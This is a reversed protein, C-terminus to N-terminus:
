HSFVLYDTWLEYHDLPVRAFTPFLQRVVGLVDKPLLAHRRLLDVNFLEQDFLEVTGVVDAQVLFRRFPSETRRSIRGSPNPMIPM